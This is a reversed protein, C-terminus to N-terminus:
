GDGRFLARSFDRKVEEILDAPQYSGEQHHGCEDCRLGDHLSAGCEQCTFEGDGMPGDAPMWRVLTTESM